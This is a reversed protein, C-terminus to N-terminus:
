NGNAAEKKHKRVDCVTKDGSRLRDARVNLESGCSCQCRWWASRNRRIDPGPVQTGVKLSGFTQGRLDIPRRM